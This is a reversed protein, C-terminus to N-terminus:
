NAKVRSQTTPQVRNDDLQKICFDFWGNKPM